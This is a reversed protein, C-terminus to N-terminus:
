PFANTIASNVRSKFYIWLPQITKKLLLHNRARWGMERLFSKTATDGAITRYHNLLEQFVLTNWRRGVIPRLELMSTLMEKLYDPRQVSNWFYKPSETTPQNAWRTTQPHTRWHNM